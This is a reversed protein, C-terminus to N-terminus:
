FRMEFFFVCWHSLNRFPLFKFCLIYFVTTRYVYSQLTCPGGKPWLQLLLVCAQQPWKHRTGEIPGFHNQATWIMKISYWDKQSSGIRKPQIWIMKSLDLNYFNTWFLRIQVQGFHNPGSWFLKSPGFDNQVLSTCPM